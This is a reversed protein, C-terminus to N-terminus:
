KRRVDARQEVRRPRMLQGDDVGLRDELGVARVPHEEVAGLPAASNGADGSRAARVDLLERRGLAAPRDDPFLGEVAKHLGIQLAHQARWM